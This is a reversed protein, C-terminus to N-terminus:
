DATKQNRHIPTELLDMLFSTFDEWEMTAIDRTKEFRKWHERVKLDVRTLPLCAGTLM